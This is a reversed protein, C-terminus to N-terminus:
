PQLAFNEDLSSGSDTWGQALISIIMVIDYIMRWTPHIYILCVTSTDVLGANVPESSM